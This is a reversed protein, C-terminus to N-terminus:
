HASWLSELARECLRDPNREGGQALTIIIRAIGEPAVGRGVIRVPGLVQVGLGLVVSRISHAICSSATM